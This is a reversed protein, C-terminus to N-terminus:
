IHILSLNHPPMGPPVPIGFRKFFEQMQEDEPSGQGMVNARNKQISSINVVVPSQKEALETFDPLEKAVLGTLILFQFICVYFLRRIM